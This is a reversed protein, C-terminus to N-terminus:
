QKIPADCVYEKNWFCMYMCLYCLGFLGACCTKLCQSIASDKRNEYCNWQLYMAILCVVIQFFGFFIGFLKSSTSETVTEKTTITTTRNVSAFKEKDKKEDFRM